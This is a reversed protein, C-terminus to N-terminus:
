GCLIIPGWSVIWENGPGLQLQPLALHRVELVLQAIRSLGRSPPLACYADVLWLYSCQYSIAQQGRYSECPAPVSCLIASRSLLSDSFSCSALSRSTLSKSADNVDPVLFVEKSSSAGMTALFFVEELFRKSSSGKGVALFCSDLVSKLECFIALLCLTSLIEM